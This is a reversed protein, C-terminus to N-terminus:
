SLDGFRFQFISVVAIAATEARLIRPGLNIRICPLEALEDAQWGGEPGILISVEGAELELSDITQASRSLELSILGHETSNWSETLQPDELNELFRVHPPITRGCQKCSELCIKNWRSIQKEKDKKLRQSNASHFFTISNVGLETSKQLIFDMQKEKVLAQFLHIKLPSEAPTETRTLSTLLLEKKSLAEVRALWRHHNCDQIEILERTRIRRSKLLHLAEQDRLTIKQNEKIENDFLFYSVSLRALIQNSPIIKIFPFYFDRM